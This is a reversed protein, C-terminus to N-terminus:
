THPLEPQAAIPQPPPAPLPSLIIPPAQIFPPVQIQPAMQSPRVILEVGIFELEEIINKSFQGTFDLIADSIEVIVNVTKTNDPNFIEVNSGNQVKLIDANSQCIIVKGTTDESIDVFVKIEGM